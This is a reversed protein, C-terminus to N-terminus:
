HKDNARKIGECILKYIEKDKRTPHLVQREGYAKL